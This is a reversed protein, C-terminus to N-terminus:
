PEKWDLPSSPQITVVIPDSRTGLNPDVGRLLSLAMMERPLALMNLVTATNLLDVAQGNIALLIDGPRVGARQAPSNKLVKEVIVSKGDARVSIGLSPKEADDPEEKETVRELWLKRRPYDLIVYYNQLFRNGIIGSQGYVDGNRVDVSIVRGSLNIQGLMLYSARIKNSQFRRTLSYSSTVVRPTDAKFLGSEVAAAQAVSLYGGYGTDLLFSYDYKEHLKGLMLICPNAKRPDFPLLDFLFTKRNDPQRQAITFRRPNTLRLIRRAYDIETVYGAMFTIGLIGDIKFGLTRSMQSLDTILVAINHVRASGESGTVAMRSIWVNEAATQGDAEQIITDRLRTGTLGLTRDLVPASAGSDFLFTLDRKDDAEGKVVIQRNRYIFPIEIVDRDLQHETIFRGQAQAGLAGALLVFTWLLAPASRTRLRVSRMRM